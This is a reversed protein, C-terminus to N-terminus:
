KVAVIYTHKLTNSCWQVPMTLLCIAEYYALYKNSNGWIKGLIFLRSSQNRALKKVLKM